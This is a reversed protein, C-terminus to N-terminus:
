ITSNKWLFAVTGVEIGTAISRFVILLLKRVKMLRTGEFGSHSWCNRVTKILHPPDAFFYVWRGQVTFPNRAKYTYTDGDNPKKHMRFFKRNSSAGDATVSIVKIENVELRRIAEWIVPYLLDATIGETGFHAYPFSLNFMTGRVMLVLVHKALHHEEGNELKLLDDNISGISTFGIVHGSTKNYVIGEKVKMEDLILGVFKRSPPLSKSNVEDLLQKDVEDQFGVKSEFVSSYDRLTRESPLKLFGSTRLANYASSSLLKLNLCWKIVLPHWRMGTASKVSAAKKQENWLLWQFSGEPFDKRVIDDNEQMITSLDSCLEDDVPEGRSEILTAVKEKLRSIRKDLANVKSRLKSIKERKEPTKLYRENCHSSASATCLKTWQKYISRLNARYKKCASCRGAAIINCNATRITLAYKKGNFEVPNEDLYSTVDGKVSLIKGKKAKIMNVFDEDPHGACLSLQDLVSLLETVQSPTLSAPFHKLVDCNMHNVERRYVHLTWTGNDNVTVTHTVIAPEVTAEDSSEVKCYVTKKTLKQCSWSNSPLLVNGSDERVRKSLKRHERQRRQDAKRHQFKGKRPMAVYCYNVVIIYDYCETLM